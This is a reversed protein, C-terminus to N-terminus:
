VVTKGLKPAHGSGVDGGFANTGNLFYQHGVASLNCKADHAGEAAHAYSTHGDVGIYIGVHGKCAIGVLRDVNARGCSGFAVQNWLADQIGCFVRPGVGNVGTIAEQTFVGSESRGNLFRAHSKDTWTGLANLGHAIFERCFFGHGFM